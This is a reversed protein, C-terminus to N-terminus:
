WQPSKTETQIFGVLVPPFTPTHPLPLGNLVLPVPQVVYMDDTPVRVVANLELAPEPTTVFVADPTIVYPEQCNTVTTTLRVAPVTVWYTFATELPVGPLM